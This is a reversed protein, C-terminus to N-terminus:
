LYSMTSTCLFMANFNKKRNRVIDFAINKLSNYIPGLINLAHKLDVLNTAVVRDQESCSHNKM